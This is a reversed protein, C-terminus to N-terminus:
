IRLFHTRLFVNAELIYTLQSLMVQLVMTAQLCGKIPPMDSCTNLAEALSLSSSVDCLPTVAKTNAAELEILLDRAASSKPGSRSLLILNRAGRQSM